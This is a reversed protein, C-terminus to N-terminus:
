VPPTTTGRDFIGPEDGKKPHIDSYGPTWTAGGRSVGSKRPTSDLECVISFPGILLKDTGVPASFLSAGHIQSAAATGPPIKQNCADTPDLQVAPISCYARLLAQAWGNRCAWRALPWYLYM